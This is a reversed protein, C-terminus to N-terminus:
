LLYRREVYPFLVAIGPPVDAALMQTSRPRVLKIDSLSM